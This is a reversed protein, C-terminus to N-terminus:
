PGARINDLGALKNGAPQRKMGHRRWGIRTKDSMDQQHARQQYVNREALEDVQAARCEEARGEVCRFLGRWRRWAPGHGALMM